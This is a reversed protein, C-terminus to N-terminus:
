IGERGVKRHQKGVSMEEVELGEEAMAPRGTEKGWSLLLDSAVEPRRGLCMYYGSV